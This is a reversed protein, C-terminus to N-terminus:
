LSISSPMILLLMLLNFRRCKLVKNWYVHTINQTPVVLRAGVQWFQYALCPVIKIYLWSDQIIVSLVSHWTCTAPNSDQSSNMTHCKM